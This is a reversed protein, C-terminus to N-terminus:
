SIKTNTALRQLKKIRRSISPHTYSDRNIDIGASAALKKLGNIVREPGEPGICKAAIADAQYEFPWSVLPMVLGIAAFSILLNVFFPLGSQALCCLLPIMALVFLGPRKLHHHGKRHGLEHGLIGERDEKHFEEVILQGLVISGGPTVGANVWESVYKVSEYDDVVKTKMRTAISAIEEMLGFSYVPKAENLKSWLEIMRPISTVFAMVPIFIMGVALSLAVGIFIKPIPQCVVSFLITLVITTLYLILNVRFPFEPIPCWNRLKQLIANRTM